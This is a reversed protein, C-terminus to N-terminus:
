GGPLQDYVADSEAYGKLFEEMTLKRWEFDDDAQDVLLNVGISQGPHLVGALDPPISITRDDNLQTDFELKTM